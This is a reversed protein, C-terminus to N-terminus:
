KGDYMQRERGVSQLISAVQENEFPIFIKILILKYAACHFYWRRVKNLRRRAVTKM